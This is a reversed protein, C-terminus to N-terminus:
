ATPLWADVAARLRDRHAVTRQEEGTVVLGHDADALAVLEAGLSAAVDADWAIPDATGAVVLQPARNRRIAKVVTKDLLLPTLWVAPLRERTAYPAARSGLSKGVLLPRDSWGAAATRAQDVVWATAKRDALGDPFRWRVERVAWGRALLVDAVAGLLPRSPGYARGPLLVARGVEPAEPHRDRLETM